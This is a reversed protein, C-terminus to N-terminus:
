QRWLSPGLPVTRLRRVDELEGVTETKRALNAASPGMCAVHACHTCCKPTPSAYSGSRSAIVRRHRCALPSRNRDIRSRCAGVQSACTGPSIVGRRKASSCRPAAPVVLSRMNRSSVPAKSAIVTSAGSMRQSSSRWHDSTEVSSQIEANAARGSGARSSSIPVTRDLSIVPM